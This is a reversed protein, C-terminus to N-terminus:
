AVQLGLVIAKRTPDAPQAGACYTCAAFAQLFDQIHTMVTWSQLILILSASVCDQVNPLGQTCLAATLTVALLSARAAMM